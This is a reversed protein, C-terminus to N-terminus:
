LKRRSGNKNVRQYVQGNNGSITNASGSMHYAAGVIGMMLSDADDPSYGLDKKMDVKPQIMRVGNSRYKMKIKELQKVVEEDKKQLIM